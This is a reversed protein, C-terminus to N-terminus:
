GVSKQCRETKKIKNREEGMEKGGERMEKCKKKLTNENKLSVSLCLTLLPPTSFSPSVSDSATELSQTTLVFGSTPSSSVSPSIMVQASTLHKVSQAM